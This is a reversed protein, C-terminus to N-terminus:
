ISFKWRKVYLFCKVAERQCIWIAVDNSQSAKPSNNLLRITVQSCLRTGQNLHYFHSARLEFELIVLFFFLTVQVCTNHYQIGFYLNAYWVPIVFLWLYLFFNKFSALPFFVKCASFCFYPNSNKKLQVIKIQNQISKLGRTSMKLMVYTNNLDKNALKLM